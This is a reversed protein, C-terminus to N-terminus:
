PASPTDTATPSDRTSTASTKPAATDDPENCTANLRFGSVSWREGKELCVKVVFNDNSKTFRLNRLTAHDSTQELKGDCEFADISGTGRFAGQQLRKEALLCAVAHELTPMRARDGLERDIAAIRQTRARDETVGIWILGVGGVLGILGLFLGATASTPLVLQYKHAMKRARTGFVLAVVSPVFMCCMVLGAISWILSLKSTRDLSRKAEDRRQQDSAHEQQQKLLDINLAHQKAQHELHAGYPTTIGCFPCAPQTSGLVAGCAHCKM